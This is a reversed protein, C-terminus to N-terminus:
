QDEKSGEKLIFKNKLFPYCTIIYIICLVISIINFLISVFYLAKQDFLPIAESTIM